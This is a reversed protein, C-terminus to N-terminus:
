LSASAREIHERLARQLHDIDDVPGVPPPALNVFSIYAATATLHRHADIFSPLMTRDSLKVVRSSNAHPVVYNRM